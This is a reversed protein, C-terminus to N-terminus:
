HNMKFFFYKPMKREPKNLSLWHKIYDGFNYGFFPRMAFPDHMIAKGKHEAAATTESRMAAGVFVGHNWDFSEYILPIGKPRRGGFIIASIPVGNKSQWQPDIIPCQSAPACFRSNPHAAPEKSDKTWDKGNWSTLHQGKSILDDDLGEWYVHGDDTVAINTFITNYKMTKIAIPNTKESTGPCVGFFGNEPNIARLVGNEDFKMWAIDDGVCEVKWGPVTPTLMALNTKGCASPFAAVIYKKVGQPNTIGLILMHEALWGERKAITSGLRLAFCKKGLLSNGGYGSGFSIVENREPFHAIMTLEPNCPWNNVIKRSTPLPVGVSHLCKVFIDEDKINNLVESGMRTMIRMSCAVYPSDTLEIGIKSMNSNIPGMSYPIVYMTRGKMCGPLRRDVEAQLNEPSMWNGLLTSYLNSLNIESQPPKFGAKPTPITEIRNPTSIVTRLEVRAM